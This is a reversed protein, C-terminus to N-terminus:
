GVGTMVHLDKQGGFRGVQHAFYGHIRHFGYAPRREGLCHRFNDSLPNGDESSTVLLRWAIEHRYQR